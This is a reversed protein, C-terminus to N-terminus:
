PVHARRGHLRRGAQGPGARGHQHVGAGALIGAAFPPFRVLGAPWRGPPTSSHLGLRSEGQPGPRRLWPLARRTTSRTRRRRGPASPTGHRSFLVRLVSHIDTMTGVTSRLYGGVPRQDAVIASPPTRWPM